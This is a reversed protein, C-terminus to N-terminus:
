FLEPGQDLRTGVIESLGYGVIEAAARPVLREDGLDANQEAGDVMRQRTQRFPGLGLAGGDAPAEPRRAAADDLLREPDDAHQRRPVIRHLEAEHRDHRRESGSAAREDLWRLQRRGCGGQEGLRDGIMERGFDKGGDGAAGLGGGPHRPKREVGQDEGPRSV